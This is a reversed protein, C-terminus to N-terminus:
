RKLLSEPAKPKYVWFTSQTTAFVVALLGVITSCSKFFKM